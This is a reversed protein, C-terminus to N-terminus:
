RRGFGSRRGARRSSSTSRSASWPMSAHKRRPSGGSSRVRRRPSSRWCTRRSPSCTAARSRSSRSACSTATARTGAFLIQHIPNDHRDGDAHGAGAAPEAGSVLGQVPEHVAGARFAVVVQLNREFPVGAGAFEHLHQLFTVVVDFEIGFGPVPQIRPDIQVNRIVAGAFGRIRVPAAAPLKIRGIEVYDESVNALTTSLIEIKGSPTGIVERARVGGAFALVVVHRTKRDGAHRPIAPLVDVGLSLTGQRSKGPKGSAIAEFIGTLEDGLRDFRVGLLAADEYLLEAEGERRSM